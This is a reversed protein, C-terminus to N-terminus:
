RVTPIASFSFLLVEGAINLRVMVSQGSKIVSLDLMVLGSYSASPEISTQDLMQSTIKKLYRMRALQEELRTAATRGSEALQRQSLSQDNIGRPPPSSFQQATLSETTDSQYETLLQQPTIVALERGNSTAHIDGLSLSLTQGSKNLIKLTFECRALERCASPLLQADLLTTTVNGGREVPVVALHMAPATACGTLVSSLLLIILVDIRM